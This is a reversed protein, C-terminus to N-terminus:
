KGDSQTRNKLCDEVHSLFRAALAPLEKQKDWVLKYDVTKVPDVIEKEVIGAPTYVIDVKPFIAIGVGQRTLERANLFSSMECVINLEHDFTDFWSEIERVRSKRSPILLPEKVLLQLSITNGPLAALPHHEPIMAVWPMVEVAISDLREHDFPEAILALDLLGKEMREVVDDTSGNWLEYHVQPYLATFSSIWQALLSPGRGEVTGIYLTGGIGNKLESVEERTKDIMSLIEEGRNRLLVGEETLKLRKKSRDFLEVGLEEELQRMQRSLPPQAMHLNEAARTINCEKAVELFYQITRIDM